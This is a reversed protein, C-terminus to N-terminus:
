NVHITKAADAPATRRRICKWVDRSSVVFKVLFPLFFPAYIAAKHDPPMYLQPIMDPHYLCSSALVLGDRAATAASSPSADVLSQEIKDLAANMNSAIIPAVPLVSLSSVLRCLSSLQAVAKSAAAVKLQSQLLSLEWGSLGEPGRLVTFGKKADDSTLGILRRLQHGHVLFAERLEDVGLKGNPTSPTNYLVVGGWGNLTFGDAANGKDDTITVPVASQRPVFLVFNLTGPGTTLRWEDSRVVAALEHSGLVSGSRLTPGLSHFLRVHSSVTFSWAHNLREVFPTLYEAM